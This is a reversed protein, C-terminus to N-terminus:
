KLFEMKRTIEFGNVRLKYLYTGSSMVKGNSDKGDWNVTHFGSNLNRAVVERVMQGKLNFVSLNVSGAEKMKFTIRTEPNFPNPYNQELMYEEPSSMSAKIPGHLMMRGNYDVDALKYFYTQGPEATNDIYRYNHVSSSTGAGPILSASIQSFEGKESEARYIGFGLNETESATKWELQVGGEGAIALFSTLEVPTLRFYYDQVEGDYLDQFGASSSVVTLPPLQGTVGAAAYRFRAWMEVGAVASAPVQFNIVTVTSGNITRPPIINENADTWDGDNNFDIWAAMIGTQSVSITVSTNSGPDTPGFEIGDNESGDNPLTEADVWPGVQNLLGIWVNSNHKHRAPPLADSGYDYEPQVIQQVALYVTASDCLPAAGNDCVLYTFADEGIYGSFPTYTYNGNASLDLTGHSPAVVPTSNVTLTGGDPDYDNTLVNGMVATDLTTINTDNIAIPARNANIINMSFVNQFAKQGCSPTILTLSVDYTNVVSYAHSVPNGTAITSDGFDWSFSLGPDYPNPTATFQISTGVSVPSTPDATVMVTYDSASRSVELQQTNSGTGGSSCTTQLQVTYINPTAYIHSAPNGTATTGDGFNWVFTTPTDTGTYTFTVPQDTCGPNPNMIFDTPCAPIDELSFAYDEVEGERYIGYSNMNQTTSIRFRAYTTGSFTVGDASTVQPSATGTGTVAMNLSAEGADAFDGDGNWDFWGQIYATTGTSVWYTIPITTAQGRFIILPVVVGNEDDPKIGTDDDGTSNLPSNPSVEFDPDDGVPGLYLVRAPIGELEHAAPMPTDYSVPLDGYDECLVTPQNNLTLQSTIDNLDWNTLGPFTTNLTLNPDAVLKTFQIRGIRTPCAAVTHGGDDPPGDAKACNISFRGNSKRNMSSVNTYSGPLAPNADDWPGDCAAVKGVYNVELTDYDLFLTLNGLKESTQGPLLRIYFDVYMTDDGENVTRFSAEYVYSQGWAVTISMAIIFVIGLYLMFLRKNM